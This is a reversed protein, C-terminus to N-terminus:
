NHHASGSSEPVKWGAYVIRDASWEGGEEKRGEKRGEMMGEKM